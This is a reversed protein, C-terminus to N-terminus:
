QAGAGATAFTGGAFADLRYTSAAYTGVVILKVRWWSGFLGAILTGATATGDTPVVAAAAPTSVAGWVLRGSTTLLQTFAIVDCWTLGSDMSQQLFANISTGGSGYVFNQQVLIQNPLLPASASARLQFPPGATTGAALVPGNFLATM